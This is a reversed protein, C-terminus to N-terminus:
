LYKNKTITIKQILQLKTLVKLKLLQQYPLTEQQINNKKSSKTGAESEILELKNKPQQKSGPIQPIFQLQEL